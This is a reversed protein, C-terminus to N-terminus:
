RRYCLHNEAGAAEIGTQVWEWSLFVPKGACPWLARWDAELGAREALPVISASLDATASPAPTDSLAPSSVRYVKKLWRLSRGLM